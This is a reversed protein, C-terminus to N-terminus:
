TQDDHVSAPRRVQGVLMGGALLGVGLMTLWLVPPEPVAQPSVDLTTIQSKNERANAPNAPLPTTHAVESHSSRRSFADSTTSSYLVMFLVFLGVWSFLKM